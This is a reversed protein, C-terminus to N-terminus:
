WRWRTAAAVEEPSADDYAALEGRRVSCFSEFLPPGLAERLVWSDQLYDLAESLSRPLRKAGRALLQQETFAAPDGQVEPPLRLERSVGDLGCALVAGV